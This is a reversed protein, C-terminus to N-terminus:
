SAAAAIQWAWSHGPRPYARRLSAFSFPIGRDFFLLISCFVIFYSIFSDLRAHSAVAVALHMSKRLKSLQSMMGLFAETFCGTVFAFLLFRRASVTGSWRFIFSQCMQCM